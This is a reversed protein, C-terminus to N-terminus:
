AAAKVPRLARAEDYIEVLRATTAGPSLRQEYESRAARGLREALEGDDALRRLAAALEEVSGPAALLGTEGDAVVEALAGIRSAVVPVGLSFAEVITRPFVEYWLSPVVLARAERLRALAETRPLPGVLEVGPGRVLAAESGAGIVELRREGAPFALRWAELLPAIGKEPVLRSLVVFPEGAGTRTAGPDPATNPKVVIRDAPWGAEIYKSRTFASPTISLDVASRWTGRAHHLASMAVLPATAAASGRYCGHRVAPLPM